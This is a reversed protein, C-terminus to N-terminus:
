EQGEAKPEGAVESKIEQLEAEIEADVTLGHDDMQRFKTALFDSAVTAAAEAEAEIDDVREEILDITESDAHDDAEWTSEQVDRRVKDLRERALVLDKKREAEDRKLQLGELHMRLLDACRKETEWQPRLSDAVREHTRRRRLAERALDDDERRAALVAKKAMVEAQLENNALEDRLRREEQEAEASAVEAAELDEDMDAILQALVREPDQSRAILENINAKMLRKMREILGM